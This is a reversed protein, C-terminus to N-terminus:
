LQNKKNLHHILNNFNLIGTYLFLINQHLAITWLANLLLLFVVM